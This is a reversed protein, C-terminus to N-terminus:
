DPSWAPGVADVIYGQQSGGESVLMVNCFIEGTGDYGYDCRDYALLKGPNSAQASTNSISAVIIFLVPLLNILWRSMLYDRAINAYGSLIVSHLHITKM